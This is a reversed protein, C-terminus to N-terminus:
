GGTTTEDDNFYGNQVLEEPFGTEMVQDISYYYLWEATAKEFKNIPIAVSGFRSKMTNVYTEYYSIINWKMMDYSDYPMSLYGLMMELDFDFAQAFAASGKMDVFDMPDWSYDDNLLYETKELGLKMMLDPYFAGEFDNIDEQGLAKLKYSYLVALQESAMLAEAFDSANVGSKKSLEAISDPFYSIFDQQQMDNEFWWSMFFTANPFSDIDRGYIWEPVTSNVYVDSDPYEMGYMDFENVAQAIEAVCTLASMPTLDDTFFHIVNKVACKCSGQFHKLIPGAYTAFMPDYKHMNEIEMAVLDCMGHSAESATIMGSMLEGILNNYAMQTKQQFLCQEKWMQPELYEPVALPLLQCFEETGLFELFEYFGDMLWSDGGDYDMHMDDGSGGYYDDGSGGGYYDDDDHDNGSGGMGWDGMWDFWGSGSEDHDPKYGGYGDMDGHEKHHEMMHEWEKYSEQWKKMAHRWDKMAERSCEGEMPKEHSYNSDDDSYDGENHNNHHDNTDNEAETEWEHDYGDDMNGYEDTYGHEGHTNTTTMHPTM